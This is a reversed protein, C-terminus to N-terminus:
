SEDNATRPQSRLNGENEDLTWSNNMVNPTNKIKSGSLGRKKISVPTSHSDEKKLQGESEAKKRRGANDEDDEDEERHESVRHMSM